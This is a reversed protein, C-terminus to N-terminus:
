NTVIIKRPNRGAERLKNSILLKKSVDKNNRVILPELSSIPGM